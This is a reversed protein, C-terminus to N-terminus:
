YLFSDLIRIQDFPNNIFTFNDSTFNTRKVVSKFNILAFSDFFTFETWKLVSKFHTFPLQLQEDHNNRQREDILQSSWTARIDGQSNYNSPQTPAAPNISVVTPFAQSDYSTSIELGSAMSSPSWSAATSSLSPFVTSGSSPPVAKGSESITWGSPLGIISTYAGTASTVVTTAIGVTASADWPWGTRTVSGTSSDGAGFALPANNSVSSTVTSAASSAVTTAPTSTGSSGGDVKGGESDISEWTGLTGSYSYSSGTSYDQVSISKLYMTFPGASYDVVGGAWNITGQPNSPDGGAWTGVKVQMPTQPYQGSAADAQTLVRVTQGDIGWVIQEATWDVTYTHFQDHNNDAGHFAGRNYTTTIGKGFYNSQVQDDDGGLWEWDIEDLCDSQLVASSVIGTGPAAKIVYEVHGFMIYWSSTITPSDGHKAVTFEAGNSGYTPAGTATFQSSAGSTFDITVSNGLAPDSPCGGQTLPNCKSYTQASTQTISLVLSLVSLITRVPLLM